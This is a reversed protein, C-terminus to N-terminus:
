FGAQFGELESGKGVRGGIARELGMGVEWGDGCEGENRELGM